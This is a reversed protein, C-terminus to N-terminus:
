FTKAGDIKKEDGLDVLFELQWNPENVRMTVLNGIRSASLNERQTMQYVFSFTNLYDQTVNVAAAYNSFGNSDKQPKFLIHFTETRLKADSM